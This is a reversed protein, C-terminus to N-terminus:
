KGNVGVQNRMWDVFTRIMKEDPDCHEKQKMLLCFNNLAKFNNESSNLYERPLLSLSAALQVGFDADNLAQLFTERDSENKAYGLFLAARIRMKPSPDKLLVERLIPRYYVIDSLFEEYAYSHAGLGFYLVSGSSEDFPENKWQQLLYQPRHWFWVATLLITVIFLISKIRLSCKLLPLICFVFTVLYPFSYLLKEEIMM